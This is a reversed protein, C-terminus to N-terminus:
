SQGRILIQFIRYFSSPSLVSMQKTYGFPLLLRIRVSDHSIDAAHPKTTRNM